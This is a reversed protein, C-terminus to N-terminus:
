PRMFDFLGCPKGQAGTWGPKQLKAKFYSLIFYRRRIWLLGSHVWSFSFSVLVLLPVLSCSVNDAIVM